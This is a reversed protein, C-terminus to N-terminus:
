GGSLPNGGTAMTRVPGAAAAAKPQGIRLAAYHGDHIAKEMPRPTLADGVVHVEGAYGELADALAREAVNGSVFVISDAAYMHDKGSDLSRLTVERGAVRVVQMRPVLTFGSPHDTLRRLAPDRMMAGVMQPGVTTHSTAFVVAVGKALLYEAVAIAEYHGVDDFVVATSGVDAADSMVDWSTFVNPRDIGEVQSAPRASQFGDRRPASGTAVIVADPREREVLERDVRTGTQIRVELKRLQPVIWDIDAGFEDRTPAKRALRV